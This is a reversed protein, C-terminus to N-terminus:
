ENSYAYPGRNSTRENKIVRGKKLIRFIVSIINVIKINIICNIELNVLNQNAYVPTINYKYKEKNHFNAKRTLFVSIISNILAISYATYAADELGLYGDVNLGELLIEFNKILGVTDRYRIEKIDWKGKKYSDKLKKNNIKIEFIKIKNFIYIAIKSVFEIKFKGSINSIQLKEIKLKINSLLLIFIVLANFIIFGILLFVLIM